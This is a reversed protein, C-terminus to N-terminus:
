FATMQWLVLDELFAIVQLANNFFLLSPSSEM